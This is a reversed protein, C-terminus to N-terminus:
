ARLGNGREQDVTAEDALITEEAEEELPWKVKGEPTLGKRFRKLRFENTKAPAAEAIMRM